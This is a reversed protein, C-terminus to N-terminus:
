LKCSFYIRDTTDDIPKNDTTSLEVKSFREKLSQEVREYPYASIPISTRSLRYMKDEDSPYFVEINWSYLGDQKKEINILQYKNKILEYMPRFAAFRDMKHVTNIDVIFIGGDKLHAKVRDFTAEWQAFEVLHNISDFICLVVDFKKGLEFETMDGEIFTMNPLKARAIDLMNPSLDLGTVDYHKSLPALVNGTGCAIELISRAEPNLKQIIGQLLKVKAVNDTSSGEDYYEAFENYYDAKDYVYFVM